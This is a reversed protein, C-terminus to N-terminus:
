RLSPLEEAKLLQRALDAMRLRNFKRTNFDLGAQHQLNCKNCRQLAPSLILGAFALAGKPSFEDLKTNTTSSL